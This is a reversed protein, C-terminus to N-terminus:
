TRPGSGVCPEVLTSWVYGRARSLARTYFRQLLTRTFLPSPLNYLTKLQPLLGRTRQRSPAESAPAKPVASAVNQPLDTHRRLKHQLKTYIQTQTATQHENTTESHKTCKAITNCNLSRRSKTATQHVNFNTECNLTLQNDRPTQHM